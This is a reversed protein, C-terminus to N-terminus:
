GVLAKRPYHAKKGDSLRPQVEVSGDQKENGQVKKKKGVNKAGEFIKRLLRMMGEYRRRELSRMENLHKNASVSCTRMLGPGWGSSGEEIFPSIQCAHSSSSRSSKEM